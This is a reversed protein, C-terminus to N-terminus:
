APASSLAVSNWWRDSGPQCKRRCDCPEAGDVLEALLDQGADIAAQETEAEVVREFCETPDSYIGKTCPHDVSEGNCHEATIRFAAM